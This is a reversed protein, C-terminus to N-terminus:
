ALTAPNLPRRSRKVAHACARAAAHVALAPTTAAIRVESMAYSFLVSCLCELLSTRNVCCALGETIIRAFLLAEGEEGAPRRLIFMTSTPPSQSPVFAFIERSDQQKPILPQLVPENHFYDITPKMKNNIEHFHIECVKDVIDESQFTVFGFGSRENNQTMCFKTPSRTREIAFISDVLSTFTVRKRYASSKVKHRMMADISFFRIKLITGILALVRRTLREFLAAAPMCAGRRQPAGDPVAGLNSPSNRSPQIPVAPTSVRRPHSLRIRPILVALLYACPHKVRLGVPPCLKLLVKDGPGSLSCYESGKFPGIYEYLSREPLSEMCEAKLAGCESSHAVKKADNM